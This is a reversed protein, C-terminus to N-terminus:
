NFRAKIDKAAKIGSVFAYNLNYGGCDGDIDLIEGVIYLGTENKSRMTFPNIKDTKIGGRTVQAYDFGLTGIIELTFNKLAEAVTEPTIEKLGKVVAKAIQKNIIGNLIEEKPIFPANKIKEAILTQTEKQTFNPLFEIKVSANAEGAVSPSLYFAANGSIGYDTFLVEGKVTKKTKGNVSTTAVVSEKLGKLGRIKERETKLQVLSPFIKTKDHGFVSALGYSSGDTGFQKAASGGCALVITEAMITKEGDSIEFIGKVKKVSIASFGTIVNVGVFNLRAMFLDLVSSAQKSVPYIRGESDTITPIGINKLYDAVSVCDSFFARLFGRDGYYNDASVNANSVNGQGNGTVVLKKGIRSLRELVAVSEGKLANGGRTLEIATIIGSAGGGIVATKYVVNSM